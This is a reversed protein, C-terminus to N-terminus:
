VFFTYLFCSVIIELVIKRIGSIVRHRKAEKAENTPPIHESTSTLPFVRYGDTLSTVQKELMFLRDNVAENKLWLVGSVFALFISLYSPRFSPLFERVRQSKSTKLGTATGAASSNMIVSYFSGDSVTARSSIVDRIQGKDHSNPKQKLM